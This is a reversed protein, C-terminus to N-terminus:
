AVTFRPVAIREGRCRPCRSPRTLKGPFTHGCAKCAAPEVVLHRGEARLTRAIHELHGHVEAVSVHTAQSIELAGFTGTELLAVIAQRITEPQAAPVFPGKPRSM